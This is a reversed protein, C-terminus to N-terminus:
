RCQGFPDHFHDQAGGGDRAPPCLRGRLAEPKFGLRNMGSNMKLHIDVPAALAAQELMEIQESCHVVTELRNAAGVPLDASEFFGELLLIPKQWGLERLLVAGEVEILGWDM